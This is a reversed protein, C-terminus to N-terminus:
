RKNDTTYFGKGKFHVGLIKYERKVNESRCSPCAVKAFSATGLSSVIDFETKCDKCTFSYRM